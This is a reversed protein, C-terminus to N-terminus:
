VKGEVQLPGHPNAPGGTVFTDRVGYWLCNLGVLRVGATQLVQLKSVEAPRRRVSKMVQYLKGADGCAAM